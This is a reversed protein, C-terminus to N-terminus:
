HYPIQGALEGAAGSVYVLMNDWAYITLIDVPNNPFVDPQLSTLLTGCCRRRTLWVM